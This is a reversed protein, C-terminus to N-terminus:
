FSINMVEMVGNSPFFTLASWNLRHTLRLLNYHPEQRSLLHSGNLVNFSMDLITNLTEAPTAVFFRERALHLTRDVGLHGMKEHLEKLVLSHFKKPVIIQTRPGKHRRMIEDMDVSLHDWGQLLLKTEYLEKEKKTKTLHRGCQVFDRIPTTVPDTSQAQKIDLKPTDLEELFYPDALIVTPDGSLASVWNVTGEEQFKASCSVGQLVDHPVVETCVQMYDSGDFPVRSLTDADINTKGPCYHITFNFYALDGVWRLGADNLKATSLVYTLPNNDTYVQFSSAYYLYDGFQDCVAWKLALFELKGSDLHYNREAPTLTRSGHAIVRLVDNQYQYLMAGLGDKSVDTHLVFTKEFDPYAVVPASTLCDILKELVSRHTPTWDVLCNPSLEGTDKRSQQKKMEEPSEDPAKGLDFIPKAIRSFNSIYRRYYNLFGMLKRVESVTKPTSDKLALVSKISSPDM